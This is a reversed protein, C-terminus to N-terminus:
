RLSQDLNEDQVMAKMCRLLPDMVLAFLIGSLPCGQLVGSWIWVASESVGEFVMFAANHAFICEVLSIYGLPARSLSLVLM